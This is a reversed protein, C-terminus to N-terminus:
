WFAIQARWGVEVCCVVDLEFVDFVGLFYVVCGVVRVHVGFCRAVFWVDYDVGVCLGLQIKM